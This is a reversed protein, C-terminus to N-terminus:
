RFRRARAGRTAGRCRCPRSCAPAAVMRERQRDFASPPARMSRARATISADPVQCLGFGARRRRFAPSRRPPRARDCRRRCEPRAARAVARGIRAPAHQHDAASMRGRVRQEVERPEGFGVQARLQDPRHAAGSERAHEAAARGVPQRRAALEAGVQLLQDFAAPQLEDQAEADLPDFSLSSPRTITRARPPSDRVSPGTSRMMTAGALPGIKRHRALQPEIEIRPEFAGRASPGSISGFRCEQPM